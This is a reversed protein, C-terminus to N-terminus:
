LEQALQYCSEITRHPAIYKQFSDPIAKSTTEGIAVFVTTKPIDRKLLCEVTSPSTAIVISNPYIDGYERCKTRYLIEERIDVSNKLREVFNITVKEPRLYLFRSDQYKSTILDILTSGYGNAVEKIKGGKKLVEDASKTGVSFVPYNKWERSVRDLAQVGNKSTLILYDINTFNVKPTLFEIQITPLPTTGKFRAPSLLYIERL